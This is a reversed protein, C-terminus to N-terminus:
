KEKSLIKQSDFKKRSGTNGHDSVKEMGAVSNKEGELGVHYFCAHPRTLSFANKKKKCISYSNINPILIESVFNFFRASYDDCNM